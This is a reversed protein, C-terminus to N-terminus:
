IWGRRRGEEIASVLGAVAFLAKILWKLEPDM